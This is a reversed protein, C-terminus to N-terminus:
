FYIDLFGASISDKRVTKAELYLLEGRRYCGAGTIYGSTESSLTGRPYLCLGFIELLKVTLGLMASVLFVPIIFGMFAPILVFILTM